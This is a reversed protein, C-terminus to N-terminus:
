KKQVCEIAELSKNKHLLSKGVRHDVELTMKCQTFNSWISVLLILALNLYFWPLIIDLYLLVWNLDFSSVIPLSLSITGLVSISSHTVIFNLNIYSWLFIWTLDFYSWLLIWTLDFYSELLIWSWLLISTLDFYSKPLILAPCLVLPVSIVALASNHHHNVLVCTLYIYSEFLVLSLNLYSKLLILAVRVIPLLGSASLRCSLNFYSSPKSLCLYSLILISTLNM